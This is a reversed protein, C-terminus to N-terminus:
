EPKRFYCGGRGDLVVEVQLRRSAIFEDVARRCGFCSLYDDIIVAGGTSVQDYLGELCVKTSEYWDGDIRLVAIRGIRPGESPVTKDFWGKVFRVRDEPARVDDLILRRVEDLTGLCSGKPLPRLHDGTEAGDFDMETPEPLGEYSDFLWLTRGRPAPADDFIARAMLAGCGGRAVGLEICDGPVGSRDMERCLEYTAELGGVGVLTYPMVAHIRRIMLWKEPSTWRYRLWGTALYGARVIGKYAPFASEWFRDFIPKPVIAQLARVVGKLAQKVRLM